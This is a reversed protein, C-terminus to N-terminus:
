KENVASAYYHPTAFNWASCGEGGVVEVNDYGWVVESKDLVDGNKKFETYGYGYVSAQLRNGASDRKYFYVDEGAYQMDSLNEFFYTDIKAVLETNNTWATTTYGTGRYEYGGDTFGEPSAFVSIPNAIALASAMTLVAFTNKSVKKKEKM